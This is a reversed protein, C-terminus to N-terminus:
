GPPLPPTGPPLPVPPRAQEGTPDIVLWDVRGDSYLANQSYQPGGKHWQKADALLPFDPRNEFFRSVTRQPFRDTPQFIERAIMRVGAWYEYSIGTTAGADTGKDMPCFYPDVPIYPSTADGEVSRRPPPADLYATLIDLMSPDNSNPLESSYFPLVRPLLDKYDKQYMEFAPGFSRLNAMCKTRQAVERVKGLSPLLIGLLVSIIAIVVLLEILTFALRRPSSVGARSPAPPSVPNAPRTPAM